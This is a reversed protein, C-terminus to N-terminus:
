LRPARRARTAQEFAAGVALLKAESWAPGIFSIGVPLGHAYGAPVTLHPYGAMAAYQSASGGTYHDGNVLDMVWALGVTPAVIADLKQAKLLKDIGDRGAARRAREVATRYEPTTLPGRGQASKFIEQGFYPLELARERENFEILEALTRPGPSRGALYRNLGDKFEYELIINEDDNASKARELTVPDVIEAGAAQLARIAQEFVGDVSEQFGAMNRAVGLRVGRLTAGRVAAVYDPVAHQRIASTASDESDEGALAQLLLAADAVTRTMPGATDQTVSIPIIGSRSVLGVTPKLGVIGNIGSPCVISGDTETGVTIAAFSAAAAVGSGSSSGCATRTPDYANRTLGGRASWGSTSNQSRMNAWESLNTKGLIVAGAARLRSVIFADKAPKSGILALSGATTLMKDATDINDKILVPIGHLPGRVQRDAREKDLADAIDRADPNLEIVSNLQPGHRDLAEIRMLYHEVLTRATLRGASMEAQLQEVSAEEIQFGAASAATTMGLWAMSAAACSVMLNKM